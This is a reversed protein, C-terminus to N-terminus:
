SYHGSVEDEMNANHKMLCRLVDIHGNQAAIHAACQGAYQEDVLCEGRCLLQM